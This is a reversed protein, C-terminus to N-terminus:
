DIPSLFEFAKCQQMSMDSKIPINPYHMDPLSQVFTYTRAPTLLHLSPSALPLPYVKSSSDFVNKITLILLQETLDVHFEVTKTSGNHTRVEGLRYCPAPNTVFNVYARCPLLSFPLFALLPSCVYQKAVQAAESDILDDMCTVKAALESVNAMGIFQAMAENADLLQFKLKDFVAIPAPYLATANMAQPLGSIHPALLHKKFLVPDYFNMAQGQVDM